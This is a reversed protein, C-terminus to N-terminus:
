KTIIKNRSIIAAAIFSLLMITSIAVLGYILGSYSGTISWSIAAIYPAFAKLMTTPTNILGNILGYSNKTMFEPVALGMMITMTGAVAGFAVGAIILVPFNAPFLIMAIFTLPFLTAIFIGVYAISKTQFLKMFARGAVQAPGLLALILVTNEVTLGNEILMPYLHFRFSSTIATYLSFCILLAWFIPQLLAWSVGEKGHQIAKLPTRNELVNKHRPILQYLSACILINIAGLAILVQRWEMYDLMLEILPIFITSAFGGWLTLSTIYDRTKTKDFHKAVVAFAANYLVAAQLFGIGSFVIYFWTLSQTQSWLFFFIGALISGGTMVDRGHGRDILIGVPIAAFASLLLGVTLAGYIETKAWGFELTMAVTIQPFAYYLTGWSCIQAFGFTSLFYWKMRTSTTVADKTNTILQM